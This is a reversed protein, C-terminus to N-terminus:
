TRMENGIWIRIGPFREADDDINEHQAPEVSRIGLQLPQELGDIADDEWHTTSSGASAVLSGRSLMCAHMIASLNSM